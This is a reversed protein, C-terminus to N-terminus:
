RQQQQLRRKNNELQKRKRSDEEKRRSQLQLFRQRRKELEDLEPQLCRRAPVNVSTVVPFMHSPPLAPSKWNKLM